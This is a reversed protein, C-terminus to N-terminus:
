NPSRLNSPRWKLCRWRYRGFHLEWHKTFAFWTNENAFQGAVKFLAETINGSFKLKRNIYNIRMIEFCIFRLDQIWGRVKFVSVFNWYNVSLRRRGCGHFFHGEANRFNSHATRLPSQTQRMITHMHGRFVHNFKPLQLRQFWAILCLLQKQISQCLNSLPLRSGCMSSTTTLDWTFKTVFAAVLFEIDYCIWM